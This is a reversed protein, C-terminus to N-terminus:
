GFRSSTRYLLLQYTQVGRLLEKDDSIPYEEGGMQLPKRLRDIGPRLTWSQTQGRYLADPSLIKGGEIWDLFDKISSIQIKYKKNTFEDTHTEYKKPISNM